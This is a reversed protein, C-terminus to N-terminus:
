EVRGQLDELFRTQREMTNVGFMEEVTNLPTMLVEFTKQVRNYADGFASEVKSAISAFNVPM